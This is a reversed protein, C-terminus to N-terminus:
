AVAESPVELPATDILAVFNRKTIENPQLGSLRVSSVLVNLYFVTDTDNADAADALEIKMAYVFSTKEAAVMALQGVDLPDHLAVITIDGADRVGKRKRVRADKLTTATVTSAQDGFESVSEVEDIETWTLAEYEAETDAVPNAPGIFVRAGSSTSIAM